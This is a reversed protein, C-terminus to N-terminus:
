QILIEQLRLFYLTLLAFCNKATNIGWHAEILVLFFVQGFFIDDAHNKHYHTTM